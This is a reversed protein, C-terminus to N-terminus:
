VIFHGLKIAFFGFFSQKVCFFTQYSQSGTDAKWSEPIVSLGTSAGTRRPLGPKVMEKRECCIWFRKKLRVFKEMEREIGLYM